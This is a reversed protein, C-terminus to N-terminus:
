GLTITANAGTADMAVPLRVLNSTRQGGTWVGASTFEAGHNPCQLTNNANILVTTGQHTCSLSYALFGSSTRTMAVPPSSRVRAVGGVSALGPFDAVRVTIEGVGPPVPGTIDDDGGGGSGCAALTLAVASMTAASLFERRSVGTNRPV